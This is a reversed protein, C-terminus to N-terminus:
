FHFVEFCDKTSRKQGQCHRGSRKDPGPVDGALCAVDGALWAVDGALWAVDGALWAIDGALWAIDGALWAVDGTQSVFGVIGQHSDQVRNKPLGSLEGFM